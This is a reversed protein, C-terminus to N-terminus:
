QREELPDPEDIADNAPAPERLFPRAVFFVVVAALLAGLVLAVTVDAGAGTATAGRAPAARPCRALPRDGLRAPLPHRRALDPQRAAQRARARRRDLREAPRPDPQLGRGAPPRLPDGDRELDPGRRRLPEQGPVDPRPLCRRPLRRVRRAAR